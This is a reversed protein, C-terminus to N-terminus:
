NVDMYNNIFAFVKIYFDGCKRYVSPNDKPLGHVVTQKIYAM